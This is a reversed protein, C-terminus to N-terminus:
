SIMRMYILLIYSKSIIKKTYIYLFNTQKGSQKEYQKIPLSQTNETSLSFFFLLLTQILTNFYYVFHVLSFIM